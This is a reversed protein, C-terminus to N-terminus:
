GAGADAGVSAGAATRGAQFARLNIRVLKEGRPRFADVIVGELTEASLPLLEAAAGLVVVNVARGSGAERALAGADVLVVDPLRRLAQLLEDADPYDPINAVPTTSSVLTGGPSLYPVSRLAEVPELGLVLSAGGMPVLGAAVPADSIRLTAQVDGGRQSMGHLEGQKVMLGDRLAAEALMIAAMVVGQGGLGTLVIDCRVGSGDTM